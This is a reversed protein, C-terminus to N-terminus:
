RSFTRTHWRQTRRAERSPARRHDKQSRECVQDSSGAVLGSIIRDQLHTHTNKMYTKQALQRTPRKSSAQDLCSKTEMGVVGWFEHFTQKADTRTMKKPLPIFPNLSTLLFLFADRATLKLEDHQYFQSTLEPREFYLLLSMTCRLGYTKFSVRDQKNWIRVKVITNSANIAM